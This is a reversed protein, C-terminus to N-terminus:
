FKEPDQPLDTEVYGDPEQAAAEAQKVAEVLNFGNEQAAKLLGALIEDYYVEYSQTAAKISEKAKGEDFAEEVAKFGELMKDILWGMEQIAQSQYNIISVLREVHDKEVQVYEVKGDMYAKIGPLFSLDNPDTLM